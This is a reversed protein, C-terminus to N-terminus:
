RRLVTPLTGQPNMFDCGVLTVDADDTVVAPREERGDAYRLRVNELRVGDAHRVYFGYAPLKSKFLAYPMPFAREREDAYTEAADKATGGGPMVLDIDRIVVNRPRLGPVGAIANAISCCAPATMKVREITVDKLYTARAGVPEKRRALRVFIPTCIGAGMELDSLIVDEISGGDVASVEIGSIAHTRVDREEGPFNHPAISRSPTRCGLTCHHVRVHRFTGLSETGFKVNSSNSALRCNRVEVNEVTFDPDITKFVVADDEADVDCDEILVNRANVDIGDNCFNAHGFIKVRRVVAGDTRELFLTWSAAGLLTVDEVKVNECDRFTLTRWGGRLKLGRDRSIVRDFCAGRGDITGKGTVSVNRAGVAFVASRMKRSSFDSLNTVSLLAAGEELHLEVGSKLELGGVVHEGKPVVVRGGGKSSTEDIMAQLASTDLSAPEVDDFVLPVRADPTQSVSTFSEVRVGKAHRVFLGYAPLVSKFTAVASPYLKEAERVTAKAEAETGGGPSLLSINRLTVNEVPLGPIGTVSSAVRSASPVTARVNEITVNRLYTERFAKPATRSGLRVFIPVMVGAGIEIDRITVNELQGGDVMAVVIGGSGCPEDPPITRGFDVKSGSPRVNVGPKMRALLRCDSIDYNRFAGKTETGFKLFSASSSLTCNRVKVNGSEWGADMTKFVLADDESDVDCDEILANRVELDIGDNNWNAHARVSVKRLVVDECRRLFCTWTVPDRMTVGEIRVGKCDLGRFCGWGGRMKKPYQGKGHELVRDYLKGRGDITGEGTLAVNTVGVAIVVGTPRSSPLGKVEDPYGYDLRNTSGALVCGKELHLDVGNKLALNAVVHTGSPVIVRGGGKASTEDIMSQLRATDFAVAFATAALVASIM